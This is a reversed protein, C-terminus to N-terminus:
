APYANSLARTRRQEQKGSTGFQKTDIRERVDPLVAVAAINSQDSPGLAPSGFSSSRRGDRLSVVTEAIERAADASASVLGHTGPAQGRLFRLGSSLFKGHRLFTFRFLRRV